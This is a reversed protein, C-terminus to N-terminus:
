IVIQINLKGGIAEAYRNILSITFAGKGRELRAVTAQTSGMRKALEAQTLGARKRAEALRFALDMEFGFAQNHTDPEPGKIWNERVEKCPLSM